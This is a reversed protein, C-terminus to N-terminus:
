KLRLKRCTKNKETKYDPIPPTKMKLREDITKLKKQFKM